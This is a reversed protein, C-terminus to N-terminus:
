ARLNRVTAAIRALAARKKCGNARKPSVVQAPFTPKSICFALDSTTRRWPSSGRVRLNLPSGSGHHGTPESSPQHHKRLDASGERTSSDALRRGTSFQKCADRVCRPRALTHTPQHLPEPRLRWTYARDGAARRQLRNLWVLERLRKAVDGEVGRMRLSIQQRRHRDMLLRAAGSPGIGDLQIRTTDQSMAIDRSAPSAINSATPNGFVPRPQAAAGGEGGEGDDRGDPHQQRQRDEAPEAVPV